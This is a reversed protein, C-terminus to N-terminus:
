FLVNFCYYNCIVNQNYCIKNQASTKGRMQSKLAVLYSFQISVGPFIPSLHGQFGNVRAKTKSTNKSHLVINVFNQHRKIDLVVDDNDKSTTYYIRKKM